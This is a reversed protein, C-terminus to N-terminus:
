FHVQGEHTRAGRHTPFASLCYLCPHIATGREARKQQRYRAVYRSNAGRCDGCDCKHKKYGTITGHTM